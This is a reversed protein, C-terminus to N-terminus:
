AKAAVAQRRSERWKKFEVTAFALMGVGIIKVWTVGRIPASHFLAHMFPAYTFLLQAAVMAAIGGVVWPNSFAGLAFVPRSLSRCNLLYFAEVVVIVNVVVTRAQADGAGLFLEWEFLALAGATIFLSVLVIRLVLLRTLIPQAPDRPPRAMIGAEKPEFVLMLGLLLSTSMNVWLLQVPLVPLTLGLFVSLLIILGEGGNTPMTWTIFKTLNDFVNRGEEVAAEISAFNDDTLIMDAAGKAVETGTIGMAVGIDAQKLAPADNVGDGTMAVVHGRTQLARVLRLKQEPAVRAFVAAREAEAPLRDDPIQELQQGTFAVPQGDSGQGGRLGLQRAIAAATGQHDGTIMKVEIGANQCERVARIAEPRPPDIMGQLGLLVLGGSVDGHSLRAHDPPVRRRAFALVRLGQSAMEEVAKAVAERDLPAEKGERDLVTECRDLLREVSGKVYIVHGDDARHLTAMYMHESEFPIVDLRPWQQAASEAEIGAKQAAILARVVMSVDGGALFHVNLQDVSVDLGSKRANIYNDVVLGVPVGRLRMAALEILGVYAGSVWARIFITFFNFLLILFVLGVLLVLALLIMQFSVAALLTANM